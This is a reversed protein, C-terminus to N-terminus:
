EAVACTCRASRSLTFPHTRSITQNSLGDTLRINHFQRKGQVADGDTHRNTPSVFDWFNEVPYQMRSHATDDCDVALAFLGGSHSPYQRIGECTAVEVAYVHDDSVGVLMESDSIFRLSTVSNKFKVSRLMAYSPMGWIKVTKDKSCTAIMDRKPSVAVEWVWGKHAAIVEPGADGDLTHVRLSGDNCGTIAISDTLMIATLVSAPHAFKALVSHNRVDWVICTRDLSSSVIRNTSPSFAVAYVEVAHQKEQWIMRYHPKGVVHVSVVGATPGGGGVALLLMNSSYAACRAPGPLATITKLTARDLIITGALECAVAVHELSADACCPKGPLPISSTVTGALHDYCRLERASYSGAYVRRNAISM